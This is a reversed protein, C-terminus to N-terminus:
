GIITASFHNRHAPMPRFTSGVSPVARLCLWYADLVKAVSDANLKHVLDDSDFTAHSALCRATSLFKRNEAVTRTCPNPRERSIGV